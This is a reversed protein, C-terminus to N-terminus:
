RGTGILVLALMSLGGSNILDDAGRLIARIEDPSLSAEKLPELHYPVRRVKKGM